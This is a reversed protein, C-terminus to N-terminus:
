ARIRVRRNSSTNRREPTRRVAACVLGDEIHEFLDAILFINLLKNGFRFVLVIRKAQHAEAVAYVFVKVRPRRNNAIHAM